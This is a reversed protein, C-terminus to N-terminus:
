SQDLVAYALDLLKDMKKFQQEVWKEDAATLRELDLESFRERERSVIKLKPRLKDLLKKISALEADTMNVVRKIPKAPKEDDALLKLYDRVRQAHQKSVAIMTEEKKIPM